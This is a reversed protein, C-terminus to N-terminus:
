LDLIREIEAIEHLTPQKPYNYIPGGPRENYYPRNCGPCGSTRFPEGAKIIRLLEDKSLGFDVLCGDEFKMDERRRIGHTILYHAVQLRRYCDVFPPQDDAMLTGTIPTFAFVAPYVGLEVCRQVVTVFDDESEGLGVILHTTVHNRGFIEVAEKLAEFHGKWTYPGGISPGKVKDFLKKTVADLAISVRGVGVEALRHMDERNLPQCSVSIPVDSLSRIQKALCIVDEKVGPYNLAQVCTRKIKGKEFAEAVRPVVERTKFIPWIVRSLLDARGKSVASQPCFACSASCKGRRHTLMYATTPMADLKGEALGLVVASGISVRVKRPLDEEHM